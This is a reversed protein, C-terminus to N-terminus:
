FEGSPPAVVEQTQPQLSARGAYWITQAPLNGISTGTFLEEGDRIGDGDTDASNANLRNSSEFLDTLGDDDSDSDLTTPAAPEMELSRSSLTTTASGAEFAGIDLAGSVNRSTSGQHKLYEMSVPHASAASALTTGKNVCPSTSTLDYNQSSEAVFGPSSGNINGGLNYVAGGSSFSNTWGSKLWNNRLEISGASATIALNYGSATVHFINNRVDASEGSTSLRFLTTHGSRKSVVTNNYFYLKGKRYMSTTGNDGGYHVIQSNGDDGPELLVNGYVFTTRYSALTNIQSHDSEVLDLQRNGGEIWNYRVVCGASRDKLNNGVAGARLPGFRNYQFLIGNAETYNNHEYASGVRGNGYIYCREVTLNSTQYACFLGNSSDHLTCNRITINQGKEIYICAANTGYKASAGNFDRYSNEPKGGRIVLNEIVIYTPISDGPVNAGGVKIVGRNEAWFNLNRPTIANAGDIIPLQGNSPVGRITIPATSTGRRNIVWKENYPTSRWYILVTDGAVLSAWPVAGITTYRKGPGVEYTASFAASALFFLSVVALRAFAQSM